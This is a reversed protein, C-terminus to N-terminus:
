AKEANEGYDEDGNRSANINGKTYLMKYRYKLLKKLKKVWRKGTKVTKFSLKRILDTTKDWFLYFWVYVLGLIEKIFRMFFILGFLWFRSFIYRFVFFGLLAAILVYGRPEGNTRSILFLFTILASAIWFIIDAIFTAVFSNFGVKRLSRFVDYFACIFFGLAISLLFTVIQNNVSIEWM